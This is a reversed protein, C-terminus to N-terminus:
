LLLGRRWIVVQLPPGRRVLIAEVEVDTLPCSLKAEKEEIQSRVDETLENVIDDATGSASVRRRRAYVM